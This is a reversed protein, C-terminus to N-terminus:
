GDSARFKQMCPYPKHSLFRMNIRKRKQKVICSTLKKKAELVKTEQKKNIFEFLKEFSHIEFFRCM